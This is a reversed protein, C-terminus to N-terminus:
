STYMTNGMGLDNGRSGANGFTKKINLDSKISPKTWNKKQNKM